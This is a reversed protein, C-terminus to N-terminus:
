RITLIWPTQPASYTFTLLTDGQSRHVHHGCSLFSKAPMTLLSYGPNDMHAWHPGIHGRVPLFSKQSHLASLHCCSVASNPPTMIGPFCALELNLSLSPFVSYRRSDKREKSVESGWFQLSLFFPTNHAMSGTITQQLMLLSSTSTYIIFCAISPEGNVSSDFWALFTRQLGRSM